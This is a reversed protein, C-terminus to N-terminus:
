LSFEDLLILFFKVQILDNPDKSIAGASNALKEVKRQEKKLKKLLKKDKKKSSSSPSMTNATTSEDLQLNLELSTRNKEKDKKKHHHSTKHHHHKKEKDKDKERDKDKDKDKSKAKDKEKNKKKKKHKSSSSEKNENLVNTELTEIGLSIKKDAAPETKPTTMNLQNSENSNSSYDVISSLQPLFSKNSNATFTALPSPGNIKNEGLSKKVIKPSSNASSNSNTTNINFVPKWILPDYHNDRMKNNSSSNGYDLADTGDCANDDFNDGTNAMSSSNESKHYDFNFNQQTEQKIKAKLMSLCILIEHKIVNKM